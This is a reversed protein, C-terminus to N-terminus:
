IESKLPLKIFLFYKNYPNVIIIKVNVTILKKSLSLINESNSFLFKFDLALNETSFNM